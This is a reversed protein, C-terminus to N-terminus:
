RSHVVCNFPCLWPCERVTENKIREWHLRHVLSPMDSQNPQGERGRGEEREVGKEAGGRGSEWHDKFNFPPTASLLPGVGPTGKVRSM